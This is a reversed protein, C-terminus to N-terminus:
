LMRQNVAKVIGFAEIVKSEDSLDVEEVQSTEESKNCSTIILVLCMIASMVAFKRKAM